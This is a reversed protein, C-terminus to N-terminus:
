HELYQDVSQDRQKMKYQLYFLRLNFITEFKKCELFGSSAAM